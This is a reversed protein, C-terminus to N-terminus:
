EDKVSKYYAEYFEPDFSQIEKEKLEIELTMDRKDQDTMDIGQYKCRISNIEEMRKDIAKRTSKHNLYKM